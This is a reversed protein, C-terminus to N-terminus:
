QRSFGKRLEAAVRRELGEAERRLLELEAELRKSASGEELLGQKEQLGIQLLGAIFYSLAVPDSPMRATRAWGGRLGLVLRYYRTVAERVAEMESPPVLAEADEDLLEIEAAMYPRDETIDKIRFRQEGTASIFMRGSRVRSVQVIHALTGTSHPVAPGGVEPGSKILVVGFKSDSELCHEMMLKYREEFIQLPLSTGPFLVTNLPFIPLQRGQSPM